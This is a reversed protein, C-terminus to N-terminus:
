LTLVVNGRKRGTEVYAHAEAFAELPLTKDIVARIEGSECLAALKALTERTQLLGAAIFRAKKETAKRSGLMAMMLAPTPVTSLYMGDDELAIKCDKYTRTGVADFIVDYRKGSVTFDQTTYDIAFDAGLSKVLELNRGSCVATVEAGLLKAAQVAYVGVGGSAGNILVRQGAEIRATDRLFSLATPAGDCVAVAEAYNLVAPTKIFVGDEPLCLYEAHAGFARPSMGCVQDGAKFLTVGSGVAEVEGAFEVGPVSFRPRALGYMIKIMFPDGKRFAIDSPTLSAARVRILVEGEKPAPKAIDRLSLADAVSGYASSVIAKM